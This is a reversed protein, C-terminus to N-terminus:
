VLAGDHSGSLWEDANDEDFVNNYDDPDPVRWEQEEVSVRLLSSFAHGVSDNNRELM